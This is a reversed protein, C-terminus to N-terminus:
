RLPNLGENPMFCNIISSSLFLVTEFIEYPKAFLGQPAYCQPEEGIKQWGISPLAAKVLVARDSVLLVKKANLAALEAPSADPASLGFVIKTPLQFTFQSM